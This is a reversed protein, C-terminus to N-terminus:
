TGGVQRFVPASGAEMVYWLTSLPYNGPHLFQDAHARILLMSFRVQSCMQFICCTVLICVEAAM